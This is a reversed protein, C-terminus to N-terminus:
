IADQHIYKHLLFFESVNKEANKFFGMMDKLAAGFQAYNKVYPRVWIPLQSKSEASGFRFSIYLSQFCTFESFLLFDM